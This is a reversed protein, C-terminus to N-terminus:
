TGQSDTLHRAIVQEMLRVRDASGLDLRVRAVRGGEDRDVLVDFAGDGWRNDFGCVKADGLDIVGSRRESARIQQNLRELNCHPRYDMAARATQLRASLARGHAGIDAMPVDRWGYLQRGEEDGLSAAGLEAAVARADAGWFVLDALGDLSQWMRFGSMAEVDAFLGQGHDVMVARIRETSEILAHPDVVVDVSRWRGQFRHDPPLHVGVVPLPRNRPLGAVVVAWLGAYPVVGAGDGVDLVTLARTLHPVRDIREARADFGMEDCHAAFRAQMRAVDRVDYLYRPDYQRDYTRGADVADPGVIALDTCPEDGDARSPDDAGCWYRALGPDLILLIGSPLEVEGLLVTV